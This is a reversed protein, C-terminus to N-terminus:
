RFARKSVRALPRNVCGVPPRKELNRNDDLFLAIRGRSLRRGSSWGACAVRPPHAFYIDGDPGSSSRESPFDKVRFRYIQFVRACSGMHATRSGRLFPFGSRDVARWRRGQSVRLTERPFVGNTKADNFDDRCDDHTNVDTFSAAARRASGSGPLRSVLTVCLTVTIESRSECRRPADATGLRLHTKASARNGCGPDARLSRPTRLLRKM